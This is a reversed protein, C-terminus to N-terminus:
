KSEGESAYSDDVYIRDWGSKCMDEEVQDPDSNEMEHPMFVCVACGAARLRRLAAIDETTLQYTESM